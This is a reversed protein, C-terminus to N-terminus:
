HAFPKTFVNSRKVIKINKIIKTANKLKLLLQYMQVAVSAVTILHGTPVAVALRLRANETKVPITFFCSVFM